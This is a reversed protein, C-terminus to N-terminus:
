TEYYIYEQQLSLFYEDLFIISWKVCYVRNWIYRVLILVYLEGCMLVFIISFYKCM